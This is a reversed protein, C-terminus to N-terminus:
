GTSATACSARATPRSCISSPRAPSRAETRRRFDCGRACQGAAVTGARDVILVGDAAIDLISKLEALETEATKIAAAADANEPAPVLVLAMATTGDYPITFLRADVPTREGAPNAIRLSQGRATEGSEEHTEIFLTDLGGAQSFDSLTKHGTWDLFSPNAYIFHSHRYILVGVPLRDLLPREADLQDKQPRPEAAVAAAAVGLDTVPIGASIKEDDNSPARALKDADQLRATLRSSIERFATREM